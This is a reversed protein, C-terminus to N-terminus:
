IEELSNSKEGNSYYSIMGLKTAKLNLSSSCIILLWKIENSFIRFKELEKVEVVAAAM